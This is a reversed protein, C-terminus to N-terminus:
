LILGRYLTVGVYAYPNLGGALGIPDAQTYAGLRADYYRNANYWRTM